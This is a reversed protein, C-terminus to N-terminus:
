EEPLLVEFVVRWKIEKDVQEKVVINVRSKEPSGVKAWGTKTEREIETLGSDSFSFSYKLKDGQFTYRGVVNKDKVAEALKSFLDLFM